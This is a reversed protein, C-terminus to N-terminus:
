PRCVHCARCWLHRCQQGAVHVVISKWSSAQRPCVPARQASALVGLKMAPQWVMEVSTIRYGPQGLQGNTIATPRPLRLALVVGGGLAPPRSRGRTSQQRSLGGGRRPLTGPSAAAAPTPSGMAM